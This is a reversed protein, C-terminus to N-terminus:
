KAGQILKIAALTMSLPIGKKAAIRSAYEVGHVNYDSELQWLWTKSKTFVM